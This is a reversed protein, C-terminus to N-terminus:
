WPDPFKMTSSTGSAATVRDQEEVRDAGVVTLCRDGLDRVAAVAGVHLCVAGPVQEDRLGDWLRVWPLYGLRILPCPALTM